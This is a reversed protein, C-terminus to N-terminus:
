ATAYPPVADDSADAALARYRALADRLLRYQALPPRLEVAKERLRQSAVAQRLDAAFDHRAMPANLRFGIAHPDIRGVHLDHFYNTMVTTLTNDFRQIEESPAPESAFLLAARALAKSRYDESELGDDRAVDILALAQWASVSPRGDADVWLTTSRQASPVAAWALVAVAVASLRRCSVMSIPVNCSRSRRTRAALRRSRHCHQRIELFPNAPDASALGSLRSGQGFDALRRPTSQSELTGQDGGRGRTNDHPTRTLLRDTPSCREFM